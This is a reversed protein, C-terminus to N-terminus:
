WGKMLLITVIIAPLYEELEERMLKLAKGIHNEVTKISIDLKEAIEKYSYEKYRSMRFVEACKTPLTQIANEIQLELESSMIKSSSDSDSQFGNEPDTSVYMTHRKKRKVENLSANYTSRYLYSRVDKWIELDLRKEWLKVFLQQVVEEAEVQNKLISYAYRSLGQYHERFLTEIVRENILTTDKM